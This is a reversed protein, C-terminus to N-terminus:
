GGGSEGVVAGFGFGGRLRNVRQSCSIVVVLITLQVARQASHRTLCSVSNEGPLTRPIVCCCM